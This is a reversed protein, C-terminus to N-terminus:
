VGVGGVITVSGPGVGYLSVYADTIYLVERLGSFAPLDNPTASVTIDGTKITFPGIGSYQFLYSPGIPLASTIYQGASVTITTMAISGDQNKNMSFPMQGYKQLLSVVEQVGVGSGGAFGRPGQNGAKGDQTYVEWLNNQNKKYVKGEVSNRYEATRGSEYPNPIYNFEGLYGEPLVEVTADDETEEFIKNIDTEVVDSVNEEIKKNKKFLEKIDNLLEDKFVDNKTKNKPFNEIDEFIDTAIKKFNM